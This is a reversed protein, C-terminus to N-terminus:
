ASKGNQVPKMYTIMNMDYKMKLVLISAKQIVYWGFVILVSAVFPCLIIAVDHGMWQELGQPGLCSWSCGPWMDLPISDGKLLLLLDCGFRELM